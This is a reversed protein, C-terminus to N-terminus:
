LLNHLCILQKRGGQEIAGCIQVMVEEGLHNKVHTAEKKKIEARNKGFTKELDQLEEQLKEVLKDEERINEQITELTTNSASTFFSAFLEDYSCHLKIQKSQLLSEGMM